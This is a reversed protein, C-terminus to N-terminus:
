SRWSEKTGERRRGHGEGGGAEREVAERNIRESETPKSPPEQQERWRAEAKSLGNPPKRGRGRRPRPLFARMPLPPEFNLHLLLRQRSLAFLHHLPTENSTSTAFADRREECYVFNCPSLLSSSCIGGHEESHTLCCSTPSNKNNM